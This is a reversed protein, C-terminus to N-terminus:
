DGGTVDDSPELTNRITQRLLECGEDLRSYVDSYRAAPHVTAVHPGNWGLARVTSAAVKGCTFVIDPRVRELLWAVHDRPALPRGAAMPTIVPSADDWTIEAFLTGLSRQLRKGSVSQALLRRILEHRQQPRRQLMDAVRQPDKAWQNQLLGLIVPTKM